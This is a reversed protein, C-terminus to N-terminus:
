STFGVEGESDGRGYRVYLSDDVCLVLLEVITFQNDTAKPQMDRFSVWIYLALDWVVLKRITREGFFYLTLCQIPIQPVNQPTRVGFDQHAWVPQQFSRPM